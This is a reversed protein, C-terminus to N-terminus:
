PSREAIYHFSKLEDTVRILYLRCGDPSLWAPFNHGTDNIASLEVQSGFSAGTSARRAMWVGNHGGPLASPLSYYLIREDPSVVPYTAYTSAPDLSPVPVAPGVAKAGDLAQRYLSPAHFYIASGDPLVYGGFPQTDDVSTVLPRPASFPATLSPRTAVYMRFLDAEDLADFFITLGNATLTPAMDATGSNLEKIPEYPGFAETRKTRRARYLDFGYFSGPSASIYATLEDPSLQLGQEGGLIRNLGPVLYPMGFTTSAPDCLSTTGGSGAPGSPSM